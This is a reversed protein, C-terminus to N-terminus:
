KNIDEILNDAFQINSIFKKKILNIIREREKDKGYLEIQYVNDEFLELFEEPMSYIEYKDLMNNKFEVIDKIETKEM